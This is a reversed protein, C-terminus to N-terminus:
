KALAEAISVVWPDTPSLGVISVTGDRLDRDVALDAAIM